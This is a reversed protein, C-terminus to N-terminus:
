LLAELLSKLEELESGELCSWPGYFFRDTQAEAKRRVGDGSSTIAYAEGKQEVWGRDTLEDLRLRYDEKEWGRRKLRDFLEDLSLPGKQEWLLSLAEWAPGDVGLDRWSALHADDRFAALDSLSQDIRVVVPAMAGPDNKRSHAICWTGPPDAAASCTAVLRRLRDALRELKEPPLPVLGSMCDYAAQVVAHVATHGKLTLLYGDKGVPRFYGRAAANAMREAYARPATYPTRVRLLAPTVPQPEFSEAALMWFYGPTELGHQAAKDQMAQAYHEELARIAKLALPWFESLDM